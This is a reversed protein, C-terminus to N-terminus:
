VNPTSDIPLPFVEPYTIFEWQVLFLGDGDILKASWDRLMYKIPYGMDIDYPCDPIKSLEKGFLESPFALKGSTTYYTDTFIDKNKKGKTYKNGPVLEEHTIVAGVLPYKLRQNDAIWQAVELTIPSDAKGDSPNKDVTLYGKLSSRYKYEGKEPEPSSQWIKLRDKKISKYDSKSLNNKITYYSIPDIDETYSRVEWPTIGTNEETTQYGKVETTEDEYTNTYVHTLKSLDGKTREIQYSEGTAWVYKDATTGLLYNLLSEIEETTGIWEDRIETGDVNYRITRQPQRENPVTQVMPNTHTFSSSDIGAIITNQVPM